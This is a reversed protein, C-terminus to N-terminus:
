EAVEVRELWVTPILEADGGSHPYTRDIWVVTMRDYPQVPGVTGQRGGLAFHHKSITVRDGPQLPTM